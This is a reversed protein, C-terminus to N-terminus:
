IEEQKETTKGTRDPERDDFFEVPGGSMFLCAKGDIAKVGVLSFTGNPGSDVTLYVMSSGQNTLVARVVEGYQVELHKLLVGIDPVCFLRFPVMETRVGDPPAANPNTEAHASVSLLAAVLCGLIPKMIM